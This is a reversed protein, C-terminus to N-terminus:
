TMDHGDFLPPTITKITTEQVNSQFTYLRVSLRGPFRGKQDMVSASVGGYLIMKRQEAKSSYKAPISFRVRPFLRAREEDRADRGEYARREECDIM